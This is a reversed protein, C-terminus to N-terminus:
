TNAGAVGPNTQHESQEPNSAAATVPERQNVLNKADDTKTTFEEIAQPNEALTEATASKEPKAAQSDAEARKNQDIQFQIFINGLNALFNRRAADNNSYM